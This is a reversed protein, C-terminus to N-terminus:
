DLTLSKDRHSPITMKWSVRLKLTYVKLTFVWFRHHNGSEGLRSPGQCKNKGEKLINFTGSRKESSKYFQHIVKQPFTNGAALSVNM